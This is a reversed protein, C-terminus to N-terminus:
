PAIPYVEVREIRDPFRRLEVRAPLLVAGTAEGGAPPPPTVPPPLPEDPPPPIQGAWGDVDINTVLRESLKETRLSMVWWEGNRDSFKEIVRSEALPCSLKMPIGGAAMWAFGDATARPESSAFFRAEWLAKRPREPIPQQCDYSDKVTIRAGHVGESYEVMRTWNKLFTLTTFTGPIEYPTKMEGWASMGSEVQKAGGFKRDLLHDLGAVICSNYTEVGSQYGIPHDLVWQNKYRLRVDGWGGAKSGGDGDHDVLTRNSLRIQLFANNTRYITLGYGPSVYLGRPPSYSVTAASPIAEPNFDLWLANGLGIWYPYLDRPERVDKTVVAALKALEGDADGGLAIVQLMLTLRYHWQPSHPEQIDGHQETDRLDDTVSWRLCKALEPLWARFGSFHDVGLAGAGNCLLQVTNLNYETGEIWVGGKAKVIYSEIAAKMEPVTAKGVGNGIRDHGWTSYSSGTARDILVLGLYHGVTEDSDDLRTFNLMDAAWVHLRREWEARKEAILEPKIREYLLPWLHGDQRSHNRDSPHEPPLVECARRLYDRNGTADYALLLLQPPDSWQEQDIFWQAFGAWPNRDANLQHLRTRQAQSFVEARSAQQSALIALPALLLLAFLFRRM